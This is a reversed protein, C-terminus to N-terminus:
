REFIVGGAQTPHDLYVVDKAKSGYKLIAWIVMIDGAAADIMIIGFIMVISNGILIGIIMPIIGLIVMPMAAGFIHQWKTLPALCTCYPTLYQKIFGFEIDKFGNPTFIAWSIGHILEHLVISVLIAVLLIIGSFSAFSRGDWGNKLIFIGYGIILLPILLVVGFVNAKVIGITLDSRTFGQRILEDSHEEFAKLRKEEAPTLKRSTETKDKNGFERKDM